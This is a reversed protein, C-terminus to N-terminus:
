GFFRSHDFTLNSEFEHSCHKCKVNLPKLVSDSNLKAIRDKIGAYTERSCNCLYEIIQNKDIVKEGSPTSISKIHIAMNEVALATIKKFSEDFHRKKEEDSLESDTVAAVLRQTEFEVMDKKNAELYTLPRFEFKLSDFISPTGFNSTKIRGLVTRLDLAFDSEEKCAPCTISVDMETGYSAIRIAILMSDVDTIPAGWANKVSPICSHVLEVVASGNLLADPVKLQLEDKLSMPLVPLEGSVPISVDGEKWYKGQSPLTLHVAPQRFHKALPNSNDSMFKSM